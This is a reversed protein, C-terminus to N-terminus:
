SAQQQQLDILGVPKIAHTLVLGALPKTLDVEQLDPVSLAFVEDATGGGNGTAYRHINVAVLRTTWAHGLDQSVLYVGPATPKDPLLMQLAEDTPRPLLIPGLFKHKKCDLDLIEVAPVAPKSPVFGTNIPLARVTTGLVEKEVSVLLLTTNGHGDTRVYFGPVTPVSPQWSLFTKKM